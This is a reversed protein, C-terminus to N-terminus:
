RDMNLSQLRPVIHLSDGEFVIRTLRLDRVFDVASLFALISAAFPTLVQSYLTTCAGYGQGQADRVVVRSCSLTLSGRFTADFNVKVLHPPPPQWWVTRPSPTSRPTDMPLLSGTCSRMFSILDVLTFSVRDHYFRSRSWWLTWFTNLIM